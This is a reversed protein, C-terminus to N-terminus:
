EIGRRKFEAALLERSAELEADKLAEIPRLCNGIWAYIQSDTSHVDAIHEICNVHPGIQATTVSKQPLEVGICLKVVAQGVEGALNPNNGLTL